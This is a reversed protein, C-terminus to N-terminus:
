AFNYTTLYPLQCLLSFILVCRTHVCHLKLMVVNRRSDFDAGGKRAKGGNGGEEEEEEEESEDESFGEKDGDAPLPASGSVTFSVIPQTLLYEMVSTM